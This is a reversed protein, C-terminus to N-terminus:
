LPTAWKEELKKYTGNARIAILGQDLLNAYRKADPWIKSFSVYLNVEHAVGVQHVKGKFEDPHAVQLYDVIRTFVLSYESRNKLLKRLSSIDTPAVERVIKKDSEIADGYTYEHTVGVTRGRLDAVSVTGSQNKSASYIGITAKFLPQQHFLFDPALTVDNLSDFCGLARGTKTLMICRSYPASIFEVKINMKAYAAEIVDVAFGSIKGDKLAAYPYWNDESVLTITEARASSAFACSLICAMMLNFLGLVPFQLVASMNFYGHIKKPVSYLNDFERFIIKV